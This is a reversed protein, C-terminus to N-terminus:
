VKEKAAIAKAAIYGSSWAHQFNFGGTIGDVDLIEGGFFLNDNIKSEMTLPSVEELKIGGCTVFEEKFTTKGKVELEFTTLNHILKNQLKSPLESWKIDPSISSITLLYDWLRNPLLFPNKSSMFNGGEQNRIGNWSERIDHESTGVWNILIKFSYNRHELERAAWASLRIIAPGSLGWHTILVPGQETFKSESIKVIANDVVVGMLEHLSKNQINFTFLSPVPSEITHGLANLWDYQLANPFGGCAIMVFDALLTENNKLRIEFQNDKKEISKVDAQLKLHIGQKTCANLLCDMITQSTNSTPFMRGDAEIKLDIGKQNFWNITDTSSFQQLTKKLFNKGRPYKKSFESLQFIAHTVNCRGGGSVKVKQLVKNQKELITISLNPSLQAANIACFFGSAGGGIVILEKKNV